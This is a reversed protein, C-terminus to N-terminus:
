MTIGNIDFDKILGMKKMAYLSDIMGQIYDRNVWPDGVVIRSKWQKCLYDGYEKIKTKDSKNM